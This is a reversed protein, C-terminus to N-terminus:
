KIIKKDYERAEALLEEGKEKKNSNCNDPKKNKQALKEEHENLLKLIKIEYNKVFQFYAKKNKIIKM